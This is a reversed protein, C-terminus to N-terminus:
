SCESISVTVKEWRFNSIIRFIIPDEPLYALPSYFSDAFKETGYPPTQATALTTPSCVM